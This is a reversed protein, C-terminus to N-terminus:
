NYCIRNKSHFEKRKNLGHPALSFLQASWYAEKTILLRDIDESNNHAQVQDICQFSFDGLTHPTKNFHVAVECTTKNTLMASKRNRFRIRFDTSTSGVYQLRCKKCSALYIVNKSNCSLRSHITYKKGTQFSPFSKSEVFFNRCLDCRNRDCKFCGNNHHSTQGEEAIKFRSPALLEKLNKSRRFAPIVSGRPFLEKLKPNSQLIFLHKRIINGVDPLNPNFTTVFPFLKKAEKGRARLLDNRSIASAKSFQDDVLKSPYGQNLLYGKYEATREAFFTEDSCNRKLRTAVGFPIAKFVHKPHCSSPPLYLHSDTPKSYVDTRIFGDILYLTLDLVHLERESFVLEFKITPYLSNIYDTFQHLAPLGQQWLDFVDDRYRWWLSPKLPGSFKAKLDIEGMALDAYSCANKPGMATGHIQLFFNEKFVSHNSKLCIKVAELICTTSPFKNVRANLAKRVATLGLKNDINPFMSVVDWSVLLTGTPFPGSKNLDEIKNLLDTTDKIFSPLNRALPQLYFETFASLNEIATGCCSTILRLPNGAKHTKINGFAVGPKAEKNLVWKAVEPSIEGKGLWKSCWSDVSALHKSTPDSQLTKYHLQNNLQGFMKEEYEKGDILVFRSGKDQIRIVVNSDNRLEKLAVRERKSLNDRAQRINEPNILDRRVNALFLELEPYRSTPPKWKKDKPVRPLHSPVTLNEDPNSDIFFAASRLRAEFIELDDYVSQWNIDKPTPCFSPGKRLLNVRDSDVSASSLNVPDLQHLQDMNVPTPERRRKRFHQRKRLLRGYKNYRRSRRTLPTNDTTSSSDLGPDLPVTKSWKREEREKLIRLLNANESWLGRKPIKNHM